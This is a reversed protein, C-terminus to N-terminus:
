TVARPEALTGISGFRLSSFQADRDAAAFLVLMQINLWNLQAADGLLM